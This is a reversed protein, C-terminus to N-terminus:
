GGAAGRGGDGWRQRGLRLLGQVNNLRPDEDSEILNVEGPLLRGLHAALEGGGGGTLGIVELDWADRLLGLIGDALEEALRRYSEERLPALSYEQDGITIFGLRVARFLHELDLRVGSAALLRRGIREYCAAMGIPLSGSGRPSLRGRDLLAVNTTRFGVDVLVTKGDRYKGPLSRGDRDLILGAYTGLPHPVVHVERIHLHRTEFAQLDNQLHLAHDGVLQQQLADRHSRYHDLALGTVVLLSHKQGAFHSLACLALIRACDRVLRDPGHPFRHHPCERSARTGVLVTWGDQMLAYGGPAPASEGTPERPEEAGGSVEGMLSAFLVTRRGDSAKTFGCGLDLGILRADSPM